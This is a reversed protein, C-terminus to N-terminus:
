ADMKQEHPHGPYGAAHGGRLIRCILIKFVPDPDLKCEGLILELM